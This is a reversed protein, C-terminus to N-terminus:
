KSSYHLWIPNKLDLGFREFILALYQPFIRSLPQFLIQSIRRSNLRFVLWFFVRISTFTRKFTRRVAFFFDSLIAVFWGFFLTTFRSYVDNRKWVSMYRNLNGIFLEAPCLFAVTVVSYFELWGNNLFFVLPKLWFGNQSVISALM